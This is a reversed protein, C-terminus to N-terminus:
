RDFPRTKLQSTFNGMMSYISFFPIFTFDIVSFFVFLNFTQFCIQWKSIIHFKIVCSQLLFKDIEAFLYARRYIVALKFSTEVIFNMYVFNGQFYCQVALSSGSLCFFLVTLDCSIQFSSRRFMIFVGSFLVCVCVCM